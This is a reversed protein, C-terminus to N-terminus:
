YNINKQYFKFLALTKKYLSTNKPVIRYSNEINTNNYASGIRFLFFESKIITSTVKCPKLRIQFPFLSLNTPHSKGREGEKKKKNKYIYIHIHTYIYISM